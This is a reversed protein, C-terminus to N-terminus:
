VWRFLQVDVRPLTVYDVNDELSRDFNSIIYKFQVIKFSLSVARLGM